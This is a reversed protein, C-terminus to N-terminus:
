IKVFKLGKVKFNDEMYSPEIVRGSAIDKAESEPGPSYEYDINIVTFEHASGFEIEYTSGYVDELTKSLIDTSNGDKDYLVLVLQDSEHPYETQIERM